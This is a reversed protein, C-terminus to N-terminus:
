LEPATPHEAGRLAVCECEVLWAPRCVPARLYVLPIGPFAADFVRKVAAFEAPDRLYVTAARVDSLAAGGEALLASINELVRRSQAGVDGAHLVKGHKDISATGSIVLWDRDRWGIRMGREFRVGYFATPSLNELARLPTQEPPEGACILADMAVLQRPDDSGGGIGTSALYRETM